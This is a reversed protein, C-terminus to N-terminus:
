SGNKPHKIEFHSSGKFNLELPTAPPRVPQLQLYSKIQANKRLAVSNKILNALRVM